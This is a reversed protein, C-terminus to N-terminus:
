VRDILDATRDFRQMSNCWISCWRSSVTRCRYL